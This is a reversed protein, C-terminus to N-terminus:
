ARQPTRPAPQSNRPSSSVMGFDRAWVQKLVNALLLRLKGPWGCQYKKIFATAGPRAAIEFGFDRFDWISLRQKRVESM